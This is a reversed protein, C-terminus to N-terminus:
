WVLAIGGEADGSILLAYAQPAQDVSFHHAITESAIRGHSAERFHADALAQYTWRGVRSALSDITDEHVGVISLGRKMFASGVARESPFAPDGVAVVTGGPAAMSCAAQLVAPDATVDFVVEAGTSGTAAMASSVAADASANILKVRADERHTSSRRKRSVWVLLRVGTLLAWDVLLQGLPGSGIVVVSANFLNGAARIGALAIVSLAFTAAADDTVDRPIRFLSSAEVQHHSRHEHQLAVRDGAEFDRVSSGVEEVTGVSSYGPSFPYQVWDSWHSNPQFAGSYCVKETGSSLMSVRTKVRVETPGLAGLPPCRRLEVTLARPFVVKTPTEARKAAQTRAPM